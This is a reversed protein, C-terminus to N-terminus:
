TVAFVAASAAGVAQRGRWPSFLSLLPLSLDRLESRVLDGLESGATRLASGVFDSERAARSGPGSAVPTDPPRERFCNNGPSPV